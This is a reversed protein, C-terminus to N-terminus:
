RHFMAFLSMRREGFNLFLTVYLLQIKTFNCPVRNNVQYKFMLDLSRTYGAFLGIISLWIGFTVYYVSQLAIIQSVLLFPDWQTNRFHGSYKTM